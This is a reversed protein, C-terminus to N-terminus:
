DSTIISSVAQKERVLEKFREKLDKLKIEQIIELIDLYNIGRFFYSVFEAATTSLSNFNEIYDGIFQRILRQVAEEKLCEEGNKLGALLKPYLEEPERSEGGMALYGYGKGLTYYYHFHDDLLGQEYLNEYLESGKGVLIEFLMESTIEQKVLERPNVPLKTEKFGLQFLPISVDMVRKIEKKYVSLPEAPILRKIEKWKPYDKSQQNEMITRLLQEPNFNGTLFLLMNGPHYFTNYCLYLLEKNIKEISAFTGAIDIKVPHHYYLGQILNYFVQYNPQDDYMRIEQAIIGKEKEVNEKSFFPSQVFDLLNEVAEEFKESSHFLYATNAYNTFANASAGLQAFRSFADQEEGVFLKHELFHAIGDPVNVEKGTAPNIFSNDISGYNTAFIAYQKNFGPRPLMYVTLGNNLKATLLKERLIESRILQVM